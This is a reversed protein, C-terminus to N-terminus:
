TTPEKHIPKLPLITALPRQPQTPAANESPECTSLPTDSTPAVPAPTPEPTAPPVSAISEDPKTPPLFIIGTKPVPIFVTNTGDVNAVQGHLRGDVDIYPADCREYQYQQVQIMAVDDKGPEDHMRRRLQQLALLEINSLRRLAEDEM